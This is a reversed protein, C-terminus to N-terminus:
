CNEPKTRYAKKTIKTYLSIMYIGVVKYFM